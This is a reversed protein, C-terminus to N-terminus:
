DSISNYYAIISKWDSEKKCKVGNKEIYQHLEEKKDRFVSMLEEKGKELRAIRNENSFFLYYSEVQEFVRTISASGYSQRDTYSVARHKLLEVKGTDLVQYWTKETQKNIAPFGREFINDEEVGPLFRNEYIVRYVPTVTVLEKGDDTMMLLLDDMMNFKVKIGPYIKGL